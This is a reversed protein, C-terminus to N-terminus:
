RKKTKKDLLNAMAYIYTTAEDHHNLLQKVRQLNGGSKEYQEVAYTKRLSHCSINETFRFFKAARKIDKYVAQRTRHKKPDLRNEFVYFRGSIKLAAMLLPRPLRVAKSKGTKEEKVTFRGESKYLQETKIALVDGIRLGTALSIECAIRNELTLAALIHAANECSVWATRM